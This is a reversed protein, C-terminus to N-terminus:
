RITTESSTQVGSVDDANRPEFVYVFEGAPACAVTELYLGAQALEGDFDASAAFRVANNGVTATLSQTALGDAELPTGPEPTGGILSMTMQGATRGAVESFVRYTQGEVLGIMQDLDSAAGPVHTAAGSAIGWGGGSVWSSGTDFSPDVLLNSRTADGDILSVGLGPFVDVVTLEHSERNLTDGLPVRYIAVSVTAEDTSTFTIAAHGLGGVVQISEAELATPTSEYEGTFTVIDGFEGPLGDLNVSRLRMEIESGDAYNLNAGGSAGAIEEVQWTADGVLRHHLEIVNTFIASAGVVKAEM